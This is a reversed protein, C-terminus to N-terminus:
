WKAVESESRAAENESLRQLISPHDTVAKALISELTPDTGDAFVSSALLTTALLGDRLCAKLAPKISNM